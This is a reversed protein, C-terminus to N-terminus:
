SCDASKGKGIPFSFFDKSFLGRLSASRMERLYWNPKLFPSGAVQLTVAVDLAEIDTQFQDGLVGAYGPLCFTEFQDNGEIVVIRYIRDKIQMFTKYSWETKAVNPLLGL